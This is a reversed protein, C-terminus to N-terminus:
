SAADVAGEGEIVGLDVLDMAHEPDRCFMPSWRRQSEEELLSDTIEALEEAGYDDPMEAEVQRLKDRRRLSARAEERM